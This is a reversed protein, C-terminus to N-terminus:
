QSCLLLVEMFSPHNTYSVILKEIDRSWSTVIHIFFKLLSDLIYELFFIQKSREAVNNPSHSSQPRTSTSLPEDTRLKRTCDLFMELNSCICGTGSFSFFFLGLVWFWTLVMVVFLSTKLYCKSSTNSFHKSQIELLVGAEQGLTKATGWNPWFQKRGDRGIRWEDTM